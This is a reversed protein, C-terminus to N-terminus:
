FPYPTGAPLDQCAMRYHFFRWTITHLMHPSFGSRQCGKLSPINDVRVFTLVYRAGHDPAREAIKAMASPMMRQGRYALFTYAYELLMEDRKLAPLRGGFFTQIRDNGDPGILWQMYAVSNDQTVAVYCTNVSQELFPLRRPREAIIAPLDEEALPRVTVPIRAEPAPFPATMDRRLCYSVDDSYIRRRLEGLVAGLEGGKLVLILTKLRTLLARM